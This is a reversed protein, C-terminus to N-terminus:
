RQGFDPRDARLEVLNAALDLLADAPLEASDILIRTGERDLRVRAPQWDELPERWEIRLGDRFTEQWPAPRAHDWEDYEGEAAAPVQTIRVSQLNDPSRLHMWASARLPPRDSPGSYGLNTEWGDPVRRPAFVAFEALELLRDPRLDHHHHGHSERVGRVPSEDPSVFVFLEDSFPEDVGLEVVETESFTTGEFSGVVRLILGHEADVDLEYCDAGWAPLDHLTRHRADDGAGPRPVARCRRTRRGAVEGPGLPELRLTAVVALGGLIWKSEEAMSTGVEEDDENSVSGRYPDWSWWIGGRRLALREHRGATEERELREDRDLWIRTRMERVPPEDDGDEEPSIEGYWVVGGGSRETASRFAAAAAEEDVRTVIEARLRRVRDRGDHLLALLDGLESM